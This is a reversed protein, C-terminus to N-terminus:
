SHLWMIRLANINPDHIWDVIEKLIEKRMGELCKKMMKHGVDAAYMMSDLNLDELICYVNIHIDRVARDCYQQM